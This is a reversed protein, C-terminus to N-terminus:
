FCELPGSAPATFTSHGSTITVSVGNLGIHFTTIGTNNTVSYINGQQVVQALSSSCYDAGLTITYGVPESFCYYTGGKKPVCAQGKMCVDGCGSCNQQTGITCGGNSIRNVIRDHTCSRCIGNHKIASTTDCTCLKNITLAKGVGCSGAPTELVYDVTQYAIYDTYESAPNRINSSGAETYVRRGTEIELRPLRHKPPNSISRRRAGNLRKMRIWDSADIRRTGRQINSAM